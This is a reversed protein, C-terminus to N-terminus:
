LCSYATTRFVKGFPAQFGQNPNGGKPPLARFDGLPLRMKLLSNAAISGAIGAV